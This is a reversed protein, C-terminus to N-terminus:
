GTNEVDLVLLGTEEDTHCQLHEARKPVLDLYNVSSKKKKM